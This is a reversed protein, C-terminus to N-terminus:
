EEVVEFWSRPYAYEEGTYDKIVYWKNLPDNKLFTADYIYGKKFGTKTLNSIYRVQIYEGYKGNM